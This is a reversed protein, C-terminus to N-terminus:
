LVQLERSQLYESLEEQNGELVIRDRKRTLQYNYMPDYYDRLLLEIWKRHLDLDMQELADSLHAKIAQYRKGGLRKQIRDLSSLMAHRYLEPGDTGFHRDYEKGLDIVYDFLITEVRAEFSKTLLLIPSRKMKERLALPISCSGITVGEDELLFTSCQQTRKLMAVAIQNEFEIVTPQPTARRGFSSGRHNALGELDISEYWRNLFHTKATGTKGGIIILNKEKVINELQDILFRRLAKYGGEIRPIDFGSEILWGAVTKSRLGGRFCYLYGTPNDRIFSQWQQMLNERTEGSVLQHGLEIAADQGQQKYTTGVEARQEDTMLPINISSPFAGQKFEGPSRLDLM